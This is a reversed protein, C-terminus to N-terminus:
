NNLHIYVALQREAIFCDQDIAPQHIWVSVSYVTHDLTSANCVNECVIQNLETQKEYSKLLINVTEFIQHCNKATQQSAFVKPTSLLSIGASDNATTQASTDTTSCNLISLDNLATLKEVIDKLIDIQLKLESVVSTLVESATQLKLM